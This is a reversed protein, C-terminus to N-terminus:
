ERENTTANVNLSFNVNGRTETELRHNVCIEDFAHLCEEGERRQRISFSPFTLVSKSFPNVLNNFKINISNIFM